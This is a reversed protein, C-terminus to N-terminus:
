VQPIKEKSYNNQLSFLCLINITLANIRRLRCMFCIVTKRLAPLDIFWNTKVTQIQGHRQNTLVIACCISPANTINWVDKAIVVHKKISTNGFFHSFIKDKKFYMSRVYANRKTMKVITNHLKRAKRELESYSTGKLKSHKSQYVRM